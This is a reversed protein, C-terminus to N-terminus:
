YLQGKFLMPSKPPYPNASHLPVLGESPKFDEHLKYEARWIWLEGNGSEVLRPGQLITNNVISFFWMYPTSGCLEFVHQELDVTNVTVIM